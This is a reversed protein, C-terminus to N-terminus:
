KPEVWRVGRRCFTCYPEGGCLMVVNRHEGCRPCLPVGREDQPLIRGFRDRYVRDGRANWAAWEALIDAVDTPTMQGPKTLM